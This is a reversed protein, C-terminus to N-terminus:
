WGKHLKMLQAELKIKIATCLDKSKETTCNVFENKTAKILFELEKENFM